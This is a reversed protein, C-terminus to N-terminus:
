GGTDLGVPGVFIQAVGVVARGQASQALCLIGYTTSASGGQTWVTLVAGAVSVPSVQLGDPMVILNVSALEIADGAALETTFDFTNTLRDDPSQTQFTLM